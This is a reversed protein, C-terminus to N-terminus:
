GERGPSCQLDAKRDIAPTLPRSGIMLTRSPGRTVTRTAQAVDTIRSSKRTGKGSTQQACFRMVARAGQGPQLLRLHSHTAANTARPVDEKCRRHAEFTSM